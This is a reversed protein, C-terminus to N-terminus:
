FTTKQSYIVLGWRLNVKLSKDFGPTEKEMHIVDLAFPGHIGTYITGKSQIFLGNCLSNSKRGEARGFNTIDM